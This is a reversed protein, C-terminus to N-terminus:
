YFYLYFHLFVFFLFCDHYLMAINVTKSHTVVGSGPVIFPAGTMGIKIYANSLDIDAGIYCIGQTSKVFAKQVRRGLTLRAELGHENHCLM